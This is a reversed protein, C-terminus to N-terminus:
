DQEVFGSENLPQSQQSDSSEGSLEADMHAKDEDKIGDMACLISSFLKETHTELAKSQREILGLTEKLVPSTSSMCSLLIEGTKLVTTTLPQHADVEQQFTKYDAFSSKISEIDRAPPKWKEMRGVVKYLWQILQELHLCFTQVHQMLSEKTDTSSHDALTKTQVELVSLGGLRDMFSAVKKLSSKTVDSGMILRSTEKEHCEQSIDQAGAGEETKAEVLTTSSKLSLSEKELSSSSDWGVDVPKSVQISITQLQESLVELERLRLPLPCFEEEGDWAKHPPLLHLSPIFMPKLASSSFISHKPRRTSHDMHKELWASGCSNELSLDIHDLSSYWSNSMMSDFKSHEKLDPSPPQVVKSSFSHEKAQYDKRNVSFPQDPCAPSVSRVTWDTSNCFRDLEIGSDKMLPDSLLLHHDASADQTSSHNPKLPYTYDLLAEYEANPDWRPSSRNPSLPLSSPIACAWYDAQYPSLRQSALPRDTRQRSLLDSTTVAQSRSKTALRSSPLYVDLSSARHASTWRLSSKARLSCVDLPPSSFSRRSTRTYRDGSRFSPEERSPCWDKLYPADGPGPVGETTATYFGRHASLCDTSDKTEVAPSKYELTHHLQVTHEEEPEVAQHNQLLQRKAQSSVKKCEVSPYFLPKRITYTTKGTSYRSPSITVARRHSGRESDKTYLEQFFGTFDSAREVHTGIDASTQDSHVYDSSEPVGKRWRGYSRPEMRTPLESFTRDVELAM